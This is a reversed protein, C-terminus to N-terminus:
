NQSTKWTTDCVTCMYIYKMNTEDYRNYLVERKGGEGNSECEANPCKIMVTRPLTPDYKTYENMLSAFKQETDQVTTKSVCINDGALEENENGCNRCYYILTDNEEENDDNSGKIKLYYMNHCQTCFHM